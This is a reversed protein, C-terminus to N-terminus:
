QRTATPVELGPIPGFSEISVRRPIAEPRDHVLWGLWRWAEPSAFQISRGDAGSRTSDTESIEVWQNEPLIHITRICAGTKPDWFKLTNDASSSLIQSVDPSWVCFNIASTHGSFTRVYRGTPPEWLTLTDDSASVIQLGDPSWACFCIAGTSGSLTRVCDGTKPDWLKLTSDQSASVIQSGDPSWACCWVPGKHGSLTRMCEGTQADWLKLKNDLSASLILTSDPSWACSWVPSTHGSLTRTCDGSNPDWLKLSDADSASLIQRGDPSWACSTIWSKGSLIRVCQGSKPDWIRLSGDISASLMQQGDPRWACNMIWDSHGSITKICRRTRSDWLMLTKIDSTLLLQSGDPSWAGRLPSPANSYLTLVSQSTKADWIKLHKDNSASLIQTGDPSWACSTIGGSHGLLTQVCQGTKADWIKLSKDFSASLIQSGNPSWDCSQVDYSHGSFTRICQGTKSEWIKITNDSSTSLIQSIDPSWACSNVQASHGSFTRVCQGTKSDWIRLSKDFSASLIQSGDPSWACSTVGGSHGSLTQTCRGTKSDWLKLTMDYSASLIQSGDPSWDCSTIGGSHGSLTRTCQGTKADWTKLFRDDSASLIQNGDPSWTCSTVSDSHGPFTKICHGTNSDWLKVTCDDSASLIHDSNRSWTCSNINHTHGSLVYPGEIQNTDTSQGEAFFNRNKTGTDVHILECDLGTQVLDAGCLSGLRWQTGSIDAGSWRSREAKVDILLAQRMGVHSMDADSLDVCELRARNLQAGRLCASRLDLRDNPGMGRITWDELNAEALQVKQPSPLPMGREIARMWYRFALTAGRVNSGELVRNLQALSKARQRESDLQLLEGLFDLTELSVMPLDFANPNEESLGHWLWVALFFEQLSSHAFRFTSRIDPDSTSNQSDVRQDDRLVFCATRLDEKLISRDTSAYAQGIFPHESLFRDLWLDLQDPSMEREGERWLDAALTEMLIRKHLPDLSHKGDDRNLWRQIFIQYLRAANVTEGRQRFEEFQDLQESIMSLLYPRTALESMNHISDILQMAHEARDTDGDMIGTLYSRIQREDFPLLTLLPASSRDIDEREEGTLMSTEAPLDRFYHSRCSIIMRGIPKSREVSRMGTLDNNKGGKSATIEKGEPRNKSRALHGQEPLAQWLLRIFARAEATTMHVTKEDLGDFILLAHEDRVMELIDDATVTPPGPLRWNRAIVATLLEQISNPVHQAREFLYHRLDIFLPVPTSTKTKREELLTNTLHKLTTTKGIGYDGLLYLIPPANEAALWDRLYDIADDPQSGPNTRVLPREFHRLRLPDQGLRAQDLFDQALGLTSSHLDLKLEPHEDSPAIVEAALQSKTITNTPRKRRSLIAGEPTSLQPSSPHQFWQDLATQCKLFLEHAFLRKDEKIRLDSYFKETCGPSKAWRYIQQEELGLLDQHGFDLKALGVAIVPKRGPTGDPNIFAPLEDERIYKSSLFAPSLLLLGFDCEELAKQIETHWQQDISIYNDQWLNVNYRTSPGFETRLRSLLDDALKSEESARSYSVFFRVTLKGRRLADPTSEIAKSRIPNLHAIDQVSLRSMEAAAETRLNPGTFWCKRDKPEDRKRTDIVLRLKLDPLDFATGISADNLRKRLSSFAALGKAPDKEPFLRLLVQDVPIHEKKALQILLELHKADPKGLREQWITAAHRLAEGFLVSDKKAVM